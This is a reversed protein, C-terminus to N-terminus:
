CKSSRARDYQSRTLLGTGVIRKQLGFLPNLLVPMTLAPPLYKSSLGVRRSIDDTYLHCYMEVCPEMTEVKAYNKSENGNVRVESKRM